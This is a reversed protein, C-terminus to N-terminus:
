LEIITGSELTQKLDIVQQNSSGRWPLTLTKQEEIFPGCVLYDTYKFTVFLKDPHLHKRM